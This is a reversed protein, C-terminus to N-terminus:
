SRAAFRRRLLGISGLGSFMAMALGTPEPVSQPILTGGISFFTPGALAANIDLVAQNDLGLSLITSDITNDVPITYSGYNKGTGLDTFIAANPGSSKNSLTAADTSVDFLAYDQFTKGTDSFVMFKETNLTVNKIALGTARVPDLDFSFYDNYQSGGTTGAIYNDNNNSNGSTPSWWGQNASGPNFENSTTNLVMTSGDTLTVTLTNNNNGSFGYVFDDAKAASVALTGMLACVALGTTFRRADFM